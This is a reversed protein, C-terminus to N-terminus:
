EKEELLKPTSVVSSEQLEQFQLNGIEKLSLGNKRNKFVNFTPTAIVYGDKVEPGSFFALVSGGEKLVDRSFSSPYSISFKNNEDVYKTLTNSDEIGANSCGSLFVISVLVLFLLAKKSM